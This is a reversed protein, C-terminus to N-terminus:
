DVYQQAAGRSRNQTGSRCAAAAMWRDRRATGQKQQRWAATVVLGVVVGSLLVAHRM